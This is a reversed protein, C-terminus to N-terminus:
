AFLSGAAQQLDNARELAAQYAEIASADPRNRSSRSTDDENDSNADGSSEAENASAVNESPNNRSASSNEVGSVESTEDGRLEELKQQRLEAQAESLQSRAQQAVRLDQGSPEAPALAASIVVRMKRITAEPTRETSTDIQVEGGVAYRKGDPGQQFTYTPASAYAGGVRAHAQEHARVERDRQKLEQVQKEEGETLGDGDADDDPETQQAADQGSSAPNAPLQAGASQAAGASVTDGSKQSQDLGSEESLQRGNGLPEAQSKRRAPADSEDTEQLALIAQPTLLTTAGARVAIARPSAQSDRVAGGDRNQATEESGPAADGAVGSSRLLNAPTNSLLAGIM